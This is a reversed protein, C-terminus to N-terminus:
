VSHFLTDIEDLLKEQKKRFDSCLTKSTFFFIANRKATHFYTVVKACLLTRLQEREAISALM